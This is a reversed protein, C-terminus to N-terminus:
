SGATTIDFTYTITITDTGSVTVNTLDLAAIAASTVPTSCEAFDADGANKLCVLIGSITQGATFDTGATFVEADTVATSSGGDTIDVTAHCHNTGGGLNNVTTDTATESFVSDSNEIICIAGARANDTVAADATDFVQDIIREEGQDTIRNHVTQTLLPNGEPDALVMTATGYFMPNTEDAITPPLVMLAFLGLLGFGVIKLM